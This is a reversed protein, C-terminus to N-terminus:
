KNSGWSNMAVVFLIVFAVAALGVLILVVVLATSAARWFRDNDRPEPENSM